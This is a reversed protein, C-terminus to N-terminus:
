RLAQGPVTASAVICTAAAAADFVVVVFTVSLAGCGRLPLAALGLPALIPLSQM